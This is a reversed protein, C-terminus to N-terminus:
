RAVEWGERAADAVNSLLDLTAPFITAEGQNIANGDVRCHGRLIEQSTANGFSKRLVSCAMWTIQLLPASIMYAQCCQNRRESGLDDTVVCKDGMVEAPLSLVGTTRYRADLEILECLQVCLPRSGDEGSKNLIGWVYREIEDTYKCKSIESPNSQRKDESDAWKFYNCRSNRDMGCVYFRRNKHAGHSCRRRM